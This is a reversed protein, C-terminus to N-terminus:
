FKGRDFVFNLLGHFTFFMRWCVENVAVLMPFNFERSEQGMLGLPLWQKCIQLSNTIVELKHNRASFLIKCLKGRDYVFNLLNYLSLFGKWGCEHTSVLMPINSKGPDWSIVMASSKLITTAFMLANSNAYGKKMELFKIVLLIARADMQMLVRKTFYYNFILYNDGPNWQKFSSLSGLILHKKLILSNSEQAGLDEISRNLEFMDDLLFYKHLPTVVGINYRRLRKDEFQNEGFECLAGFIPFHENSVHYNQFAVWPQWKAKAERNISAHFDSIATFYYYSVGVVVRAAMTEEEEVLGRYDFYEFEHLTYPDYHKSVQAGYNGIMWLVQKMVVNVACHLYHILVLFKNLNRGVTSNRPGEGNSWDWDCLPFVVILEAASEGRGLSSDTIVAEYLLRNEDTSLPSPDCLFEFSTKLNLKNGIEQLIKEIVVSYVEMRRSKALIWEMATALDPPEPPPGRRSLTTSLQASYQPKDPPAITVSLRLGQIQQSRVEEKLLA